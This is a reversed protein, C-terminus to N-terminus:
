RDANHTDHRSAVVQVIIRDSGDRDVIVRGTIAPNSRELAARYSALVMQGLLQDSKASLGNIGGAQADAIAIIRDPRRYLAYAGDLQSENSLREAGRVLASWDLPGRKAVGRAHVHLTPVSLGGTGPMNIFLQADQSRNFHPHKLADALLQRMMRGLHHAGQPAVQHLWVVNDATRITKPQPPVLWELAWRLFGPVRHVLIQEQRQNPTPIGLLHLRDPRHVVDQIVVFKSGRDLPSSVGSQRDFNVVTYRGFGASQGTNSLLMNNLIRQPALVSKADANREFRRLQGRWAWAPLALCTLVGLLLGNFLLWNYRRALSGM